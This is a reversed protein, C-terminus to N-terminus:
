EAAEPRLEQPVPSGRRALAAALAARDEPTDMCQWFGAHRYAALQEDAALRPLVETEWEGSTDAFYDFLAPEAVYLGGNIAVGDEVPKEDFRSVLCDDPRAGGSLMMRGFRSPPHVAAITVVRGQRRHTALMAAFDIDSLGDCHALLFTEDDLYRRVQRLREIKTTGLGTDVFTIRWNDMATSSLRQVDQRGPELAVDGELQAADLFYRKVKDGLYGLAIVFDDFGQAAFMEMVRRLIPKGAVDILPKPLNETEAGFRRGYGGALIVVKM